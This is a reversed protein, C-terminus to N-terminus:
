PATVDFDQNVDAFTMLLKLEGNEDVLSTARMTAEGIAATEADILLEFEFNGFYDGAAHFGEEPQLRYRYLTRGDTRERGLCEFSAIDTFALNSIPDIEMRLLANDPLPSHELVTWSQNAPHFRHHTDGIQYIEIKTSMLEGWVHLDGAADREGSLVSEATTYNNLLLLSHVSFRYSGVSEVKEVASMLLQDTDVQRANIWHEVGRAAFLIGGLLVCLLLWAPLRRRKKDENAM